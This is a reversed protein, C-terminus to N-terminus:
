RDLDSLLDPQSGTAGARESGKVADAVDGEGPAAMKPADLEKHRGVDEETLGKAEEGPGAGRVGHGLSSFTADEIGTSQKEPVRTEGRNGQASDHAATSANQSQRGAETPVTEAPNGPTEYAQKLSPQAPGDPHVNDTM